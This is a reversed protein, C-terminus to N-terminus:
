DYSEVPVANTKPQCMPEFAISVITMCLAALLLPALARTSTGRM